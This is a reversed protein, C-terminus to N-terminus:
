EAAAKTELPKTRAMDKIAPYVEKAFMRINKATREHDLFGAQMMMLLHDFGGVLDYFRKIQATVQDPTGYMVVGQERQFELTQSRMADTRGSYTGKLANVNFEVPVYGPPNRYQPEAKAVMYWLLEKM